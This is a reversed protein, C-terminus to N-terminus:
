GIHFVYKFLVGLILLVACGILFEKVGRRGGFGEFPPTNARRLFAMQEARLEQQMLHDLEESGSARQVSNQLHFDEM